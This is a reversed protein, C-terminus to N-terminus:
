TEVEGERGLAFLTWGIQVQLRARHNPDDTESLAKTYLQVARSFSGERYAQIAEEESPTAEQCLGAVPLLLLILIVSALRFFLQRSM